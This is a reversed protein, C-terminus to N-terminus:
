SVMRKLADKHGDLYHHKLAGLIHAGLVIYVLYQLIYKHFTGWVLYANGPEWLPPVELFYFYTPFGHYTTMVFGTIPVVFLFIYLTIHARHAWKRESVKLRSDLEPRTSYLNWFFRVILLAFVTVGISKHFVYYENRFWAGEPIMSTFIGLPILSIFLIATTWHILRSFMGYQDSTNELALQNSTNDNSLQRLARLSLVCGAILAVGAQLFLLIPKASDMPTQNAKPNEIIGTNYMMVFWVVLAFCASAALLTGLARIKPKQHNILWAILGALVTVVLASWGGLNNTQVHSLNESTAGFVLSSYFFIIIAFLLRSKSNM